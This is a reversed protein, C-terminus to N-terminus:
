PQLRTKAAAVIGAPDSADIIVPQPLASRRERTDGASTLGTRSMAGAGSGSM